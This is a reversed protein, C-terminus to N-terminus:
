KYRLAIIMLLNAIITSGNGNLDLLRFSKEFMEIEKQRQSPTVVPLSFTQFFLEQIVEKLEQKSAKEYKKVSQFLMGMDIRSLDIGSAIREKKEGGEVVLSLRSRVTPLLLAKNAIVFVFYTLPPPEELLKLLANQADITFKPASLLFLKPQDSTLTAKSIVDKAHEMLFDGEGDPPFRYTIAEHSLTLFREIVHSTDPTVVICSRLFPTM